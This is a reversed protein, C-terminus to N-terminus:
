LHFLFLLQSLITTTTISPGVRNNPGDKTENHLALHDPTNGSLRTKWKLPPTPTKNEMQSAQFTILVCFFLCCCLACLPGPSRCLVPPLTTLPPRGSFFSVSKKLVSDPFFMGILFHKLPVSLNEGGKAPTRLFQRPMGVKTLPNGPVPQTCTPVGSKNTPVVTIRGLM